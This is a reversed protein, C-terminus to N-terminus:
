PVSASRRALARRSTRSPACYSCSPPRTPSSTSTTCSKRCATTPSCRSSTCQPGRRARSCRILTQRRRRTSHQGHRPWSSRPASGSTFQSSTYILYKTYHHSVPLKSRRGEYTTEDQFTPFTDAVMKVLQLATGRGNTKHMFTEYLGQFSGGFHQSVLQATIRM